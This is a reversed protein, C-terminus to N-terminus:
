KVGMLEIVHAKMTDRLIRQRQTNAAKGMQHKGSRKFAQCAAALKVRERAAAAVEMGPPGGGMPPAGGMEPGGMEPGGGMPPAGGMEGGMMAARDVDLDGALAELPIGLEELAAILEMIAEEESPEGGPLGGGMPDGGMEPGGGMEGGGGGLMEELGGGGDGGMAAAPDGEGGGMGEGSADDGPASHDEGMEEDGGMGQKQMRDMFTGYYSGFLDADFQADKITQSICDQVGVAAAAKDIGLVSALEYGAQIQNAQDGQPQGAVAQQAAAIKGAMGEKESGGGTQVHEGSADGGVAEMGQETKPNSTPTETSPDSDGHGKMAGGEGEAQKVQLQGGFGNALDALLENALGNSKAHAEKFTASAYKHGDLASNDTKAPHSTGPDDKGSKYDGEVSPDEGTSSVQTGIQFQSDEAKADGVNAEATADVSAGPNDSKVDSTNETSRAGESAEQVSNDVDKVPHTTAGQYGGPDSPTPAGQKEQGTSTGAAAQKEVQIEDALSRLSDFLSGKQSATKTAPM